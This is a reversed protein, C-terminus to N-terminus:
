ACTVSISLVILDKLRKEVGCGIVNCYFFLFAMQNVLHENDSKGVFEILNIKLTSSAVRRYSSAM